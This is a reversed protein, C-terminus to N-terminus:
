KQGAAADVVTLAAQDTAQQLIQSKHRLVGPFAYQLLALTTIERAVARIVGQKQVSQEYFALLANRDVHCPTVKGRWLSFEDNRVARAMLVVRAVHDGARRM